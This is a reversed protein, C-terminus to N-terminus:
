GEERGLVGGGLAGRCRWVEGFNESVEKSDMSVFFAGTVGKCDASVFENSKLDKLIRV